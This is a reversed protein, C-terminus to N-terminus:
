DFESVAFQSEFGDDLGDPGLPVSEGIAFASWSISPDNMTMSPVYRRRGHVCPSCDIVLGLAHGLPHTPHIVHGCSDQDEAAVALDCEQELGQEGFATVGHGGDDAIRLM